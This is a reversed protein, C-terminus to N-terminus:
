VLYDRYALLTYLKNLGLWIVKLGPFGDSKAGKFGGLRAVYEVAEGLSYPESPPTRTKNAARYLVQWEDEEFILDCDADPCLRALYTLNLIM